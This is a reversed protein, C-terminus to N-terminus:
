RALGRRLSMSLEKAFERSARKTERKAEDPNLERLSTFVEVPVKNADHGEITGDYGVLIVKKIDKTKM